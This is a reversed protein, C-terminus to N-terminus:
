QNQQQSLQARIQEYLPYVEYKPDGGLDKELQDVDYDELLQGLNEEKIIRVKSQTVPDM